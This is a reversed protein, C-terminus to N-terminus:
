PISFFDSTIDSNNPSSSYNFTYCFNGAFAEEIFYAETVIEDGAEIQTVSHDNM